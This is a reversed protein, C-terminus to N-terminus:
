RVPPPANRTTPESKSMKPSSTSASSTHTESPYKGIWVTVRSPCDSAQDTSHSSRARIIESARVSSETSHVVPLVSSVTMSVSTRSARGDIGNVEV